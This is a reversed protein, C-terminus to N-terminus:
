FFYIEINMAASIWTTRRTTRSTHMHQPYSPQVYTQQSTHLNIQLSQAEVQSVTNFVATRAFHQYMSSMKKTIQYMSLFFHHPEDKPEAAKAREVTREQARKERQEM